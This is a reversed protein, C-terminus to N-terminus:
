SASIPTRLFVYNWVFRLLIEMDERQKGTAADVMAEIPAKRSVLTTGFLRDVQRILEIEQISAEVCALFSLGDQRIAAYHAPTLQEGDKLQELKM